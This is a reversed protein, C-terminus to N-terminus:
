LFFRYPISQGGGSKTYNYNEPLQMGTKTSAIHSAIYDLDSPSGIDGVGSGRDGVGKEIAEQEKSVKYETVQGVFTPYSMNYLNFSYNNMIQECEKQSYEV